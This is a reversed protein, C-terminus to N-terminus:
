VHNNEGTLPLDITFTTGKGPISNVSILGGHAEVARHVIVLGLGTGSINGVNSARFFNDFLKDVDEPPIGIGHDSVQMKLRGNEQWARVLVEGGSPSYKIANTLLNGLMHRLLKEDLLWEGLADCQVKLTHARDQQLGIERVIRGLFRNLDLPAPAFGLKGASAKGALLVDELMNAMHGVAAHIEGFIETQEAPPLNQGYHEILEVSSQITSLPTRFEHSAMSVFRTKLESLEKERELNRQMEEEARKKDSIDIFAWITGRSANAPDIMRGSLRAWFLSGNKRKVLRELVVSEGHALLPYAYNGWYQFESNSAFHFDSLRGVMEENSWGVMESFIQNSWIHRRDITHVLGVMVTQLFTEREQLNNQLSDQLRKRETMDTVFAFSLMGDGDEEPVNTANIVVPLPTGERTLLTTEVTYHGRLRSRGLAQAIKKRHKEAVLDLLNFGNMEGARYGLMRCLAQNTEQTSHFVDGRWFGESTLNIIKRYQRESRVLELEVEKRRSAEITLTIFTAVSSAFEVEELEWQREKKEIVFLMGVLQGHWLVPVSMMARVGQGGLYASVDDPLDSKALDNIVVAERHHRQVYELGTTTARITPMTEPPEPQAAILEFQNEAEDVAWYSVRAAGLTQHALSLIQPLADTMESKDLSAMDLLVNRHQRIQETSRKIAAELAKRETIDRVFGILLNVSGVHIPWISVEVPVLHGDRHIAQGELRLKQRTAQPDVRGRFEALKGALVPHYVPPVVMDLINRYFAEDHRWGFLQEAALNWDVVQGEENVSVVAESATDIIMRTREFSDWLATELRELEALKVKLEENAHSLAETREQVRSELLENQQQLALEATKRDTVDRGVVVVRWVAGQENRIASSTSEVYRVAGGPLQYRYEVRSGEGTEVTHRFAQTVKERDDPHIADFSSRGAVVSEDGLVRRYSPSNFLRRGSADLIAVLDDVGEAILRFLEESEQQRTQARYLASVDHAELLVRPPAGNDCDLRKLHIEVNHSGSGAVALQSRFRREEGDLVAELYESLQARAFGNGAFVEGLHQGLVAARTQQLWCLATDNVALVRGNADMLLLLFSSHNLLWSDLGNGDSGQWECLWGDSIQSVRCVPFLVGEDQLPLYVESDRGIQGAAHWSLIQAGGSFRSLCERNGAVYDGGAGLVCAPGSLRSLLLQMADSPLSM